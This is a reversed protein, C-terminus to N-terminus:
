SETLMPFNSKKFENSTKILERMITQTVILKTNEDSSKSCEILELNAQLMIEMNDLLNKVM